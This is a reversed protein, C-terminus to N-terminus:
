DGPKEEMQCTSSFLFDGFLWKFAWWLFAALFRSLWRFGYLILRPRRRVLELNSLLHLELLIRDFLM